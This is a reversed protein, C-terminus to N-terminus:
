VVSKRDGVWLHGLISIPVAAEESPVVGSGGIVVSVAGAILFLVLPVLLPRMSGFAVRWERHELINTAVLLLVGAGIGIEGMYLPIGVSALGLKGFINGGFFYGLLLGFFVIRPNIKILMVATAMVAFAALAVALQSNVAALLVAVIGIGGVFAIASPTPQLGVSARPRRSPGGQQLDSSASDINM